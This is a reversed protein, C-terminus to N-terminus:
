DTSAHPGALEQLAQTLERMLIIRIQAQDSEAALIGGLRAPLSLLSDRVRRYQAFQMKEVAERLVLTGQIQAIRLEAEQAKAVKERREAEEYSATCPLPTQTPLGAPSQGALDVYGGNAVTPRTRRKLLTKAM